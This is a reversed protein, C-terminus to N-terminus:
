GRLDLAHVAVASMIELAGSVLLSLGVIVRRGVGLNALFLRERAVTIDVVATAAVGLMLFLSVPLFISPSGSSLGVVARLVLWVLFTTRATAWCVPKPPLSIM